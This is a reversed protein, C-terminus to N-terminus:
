HEGLNELGLLYLFFVMEDTWTNWVVYIWYENLFFFFIQSSKPTDQHSVHDLVHCTDPTEWPLKPKTRFQARLQMDDRRDGSGKRDREVTVILFFCFCFFGRAASLYNCFCFFQKNNWCFCFSDVSIIYWTCCVTVWKECSLCYSFSVSKFADIQYKIYMGLIDSCSWISRLIKQDKIKFHKYSKNEFISYYEKLSVHSPTPQVWSWESLVFM